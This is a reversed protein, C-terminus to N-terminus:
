SETERQQAKYYQNLFLEAGRDGKSPVQYLQQHHPQHPHQHFHGSQHPNQNLQRTAASLKVLEPEEYCQYDQFETHGNKAQGDTLHVNSVDSYNHDNCSSDIHFKPAFKSPPTSYQSPSASVLEAYTNDPTFNIKSEFSPQYIDQKTQYIDSRSPDIKPQFNM